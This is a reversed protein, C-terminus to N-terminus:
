KPHGNSEAKVDVPASGQGAHATVRVQSQAADLQNKLEALRRQLDTLELQRQLIAHEDLTEKERQAQGQEAAARKSEQDASWKRASRRLQASPDLFEFGLGAIINLLIVTVIVVQLFSATDRPLEVRLMQLSFASAMGLISLVCMLAAVITQGDGRTRHQITYFWFFAGGDVFLVALYPYWAPEPVYQQVFWYTTPTTVLLAALLLLKGLALLVSHEWGKGEM